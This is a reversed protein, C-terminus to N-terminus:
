TVIARRLNNYDDIYHHIPEDDGHRNVFTDQADFGYPMGILNNYLYAKAIVHTLRCRCKGKIRIRFFEVLKQVRVWEVYARKEPDQTDPSDSGENGFVKWIKFKRGYYDVGEIELECKGIFYDFRFELQEVYYPSQMPVRSCLEGSELLIDFKPAVIDQIGTTPYLTLSDETIIGLGEVHEESDIAMAHLVLGARGPLDDWYRPDDEEHRVVNHTSDWVGHTFTYWAKKGIDYCLIVRDLNQPTSESNDESLVIYAVGDIHVLRADTLRRGLRETFIPEIVESVKQNKMQNNYEATMTTLMLGYRSVTYLGDEFVGFGWRSNCGVVNSVEEYQWGKRNIENTFTSTMEVLNFRKVQNTNPNGCLITVINAGSATKWKAVGKVEIGSGPEIDIWGGGHSRAISMENGTDGGIMLRYPKDPDGWYYMRGDIHDFWKATPGLTTNEQPLQLAANAYEDTDQMAGYWPVTWQRSEMSLPIDKYEKYAAIVYDQNENVNVYISIGVEGNYLVAGPFRQSVQIYRKATFFTPSYQVWITRSASRTTTGWKNTYCYVVTLQIEADGEVYHNSSNMGVVTLDPATSYDESDLDLKPGAKLFPGSYPNVNDEQFVIRKNEEDYEIYNSFAIINADVGPLRTPFKQLAILQNEFYGIETIEDYTEVDNYTWAGERGSVYRYFTEVFTWSSTDDTDLIDHYALYFRDTSKKKLAAFLFHRYLCAVGTFVYQAPPTAIIKADDRTSVSDSMDVVMNNQILWNNLSLDTQHHPYFKDEAVEWGLPADKFNVGAWKNFVQIRPNAAQLSKETATKSSNKKAM